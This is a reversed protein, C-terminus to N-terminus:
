AACCLGSGLGTCLMHTHVHSQESLLFLLPECVLSFVSAALFPFGIGLHVARRREEGNWDAGRPVARQMHIEDDPSYLSLILCVHKKKKEKKKKRLEEPPHIEGSYGTLRSYTKGRRCPLINRSSMSLPNNKSLLLPFFYLCDSLPVHQDLSICLFFSSQASM